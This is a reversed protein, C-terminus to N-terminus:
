KEVKIKQAFYFVNNNENHINCSNLYNEASEESVVFAIETLISQKVEFIRFIELLIKEEKRLFSIIM